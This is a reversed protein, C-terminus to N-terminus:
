LKTKQLKRRETGEGKEQLQCMRLCSLQDQQVDKSPMPQIKEEGEHPPANRVAIAEILELLNGENNPFHTLVLLLSSASRRNLLPIHIAM